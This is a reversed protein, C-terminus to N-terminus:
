STLLIFNTLRLTARSKSCHQSFILFAATCMMTSALTATFGLRVWAPYHRCTLGFTKCRMAKERYYLSLHPSEISALFDLNFSMIKPALSSTCEGIPFLRYFGSWSRVKAVFQRDKQDLNATPAVYDKWIRVKREKASRALFLIVAEYDRDFWGSILVYLAYDLSLFHDMQSYFAVFASTLTNWCLSGTTM